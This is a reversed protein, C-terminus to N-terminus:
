RRGTDLNLRETNPKSQKHLHLLVGGCSMSDQALWMYRFWVVRAAENAFAEM